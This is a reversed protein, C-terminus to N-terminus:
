PAFSDSPCWYMQLVKNDGKEKYQGKPNSTSSRLQLFSIGPGWLLLGLHYCQIVLPLTLTSVTISVIASTYYNSNHLGKARTILWPTELSSVSLFGVLNKSSICICLCKSCIFSLSGQFAAALVWPGDALRWVQALKYICLRNLSTFALALHEEPFVM